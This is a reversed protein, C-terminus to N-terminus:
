VQILTAAAAARQSHVQTAQLQQVLRRAQLARWATQICIAARCAIDAQRQEYLVSRELRMQLWGPSDMITPGSLDVCIKMTKLVVKINLSSQPCAALLVAFKAGLYPQVCYWATWSVRVTFRVQKLCCVSASYIPCVQHASIPQKLELHFAQRFRVDWLGALRSFGNSRVVDNRLAADGASACVNM